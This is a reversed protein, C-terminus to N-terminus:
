SVVKDDDDCLIVLYILVLRGSLFVDFSVCVCFRDVKQVYCLVALDSCM